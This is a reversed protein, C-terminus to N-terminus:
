NEDDLLTTPLLQAAEKLWKRVTDPDMSIGHSNLDDAINKVASNRQAKPDYAYQEVAMGIILKLLTDRERTKLETSQDSQAVQSPKEIALKVAANWNTSFPWGVSASWDLYQRPTPALSIESRGAARKAFRSRQTVEQQIRQPLEGASRNDALAEPPIDLSLAVGERLTWSPALAWKEILGTERRARMIEAADDPIVARLWDAHFRLNSSEAWLIFDHPSPAAHLEGAKIADEVEVLCRAQSNTLRPPSYSKGHQEVTLAEPYIACALYVGQVPTWSDRHAFEHLIQRTPEAGSGNNEAM